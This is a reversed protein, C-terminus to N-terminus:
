FKCFDIRKWINKRLFCISIEFAAFLLFNYLLAFASTLFKIYSSYISQLTVKIRCLNVCYLLEKYKQRKEDHNSFKKRTRWSCDNHSLRVFSQRRVDFALSFFFLFLSLTSFISSFLVFYFLLFYFLTNKVLLTPIYIRWSKNGDRSLKFIEVDVDVKNVSLLSNQM